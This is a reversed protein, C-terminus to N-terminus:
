PSQPRHQVKSLVAAPSSHTVRSSLQHLMLQLISFLYPPVELPQLVSAFQCDFLYFSFFLITLLCIYRSLRCRVVTVRM